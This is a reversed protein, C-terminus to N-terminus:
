SEVDKSGVFEIITSQNTGSDEKGDMRSVHSRQTEKHPQRRRIPRSQKEKATIPCRQAQDKSTVALGAERFEPRYPMLASVTRLTQPSLAPTPTFVPVKGKAGVKDAHRKLEKTFRDLAQRQSPTRSETSPKRSQRPSAKSSSFSFLRLQKAVGKSIADVLVDDANSQRKSRKAKSAKPSPTSRPAQPPLRTPPPKAYNNEQMPKRPSATRHGTGSTKGRTQKSPSPLKKNDPLPWARTHNPPMPFSDLDVSDDSADSPAYISSPPSNLPSVPEDFLEAQSGLEKSLPVPLSLHKLSPEDEAVSLVREEEQAIAQPSASSVTYRHRRHVRSPRRSIVFVRSRPRNRQFAVTRQLVQSEIISRRSPTEPISALTAMLYLLGFCPLFPPEWCLNM